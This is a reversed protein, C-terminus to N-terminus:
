SALEEESSDKMLVPSLDRSITATVREFPAVFDPVGLLKIAREFLPKDLNERVADPLHDRAWALAPAVEYQYDITVRVGVGPVIAKDSGDYSAVAMDRIETELMGLATRHEDAVALVREWEQYEKTARLAFHADAVDTDLSAQKRRGIALQILKGQLRERIGSNEM